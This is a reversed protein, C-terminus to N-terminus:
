HTARIASIAGHLAMAYVGIFSAEVLLFVLVLEFFAKKNFEWAAKLLEWTHRHASLGRGQIRGVQIRMPASSSLSSDVFKTTNAMFAGLFVLSCAVLPLANKFGEPTLQFHSTDLREGFLITLTLFLIQPTLNRLFELFAARGEGFFM